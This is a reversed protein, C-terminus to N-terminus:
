SDTGYVAPLLMLTLCALTADKTVVYAVTWALAPLIVARWPKRTATLLMTGSATGVVIALVLAGISFSRLLVVPIIASVLLGVTGRPMRVILLAGACLITFAIMAAYENPFFVLTLSAIAHMIAVLIMAGRKPYPISARNKWPNPAEADFFSRNM